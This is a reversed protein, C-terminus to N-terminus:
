AKRPHYRALPVSRGLRFDEQRLLENTRNKIEATSSFKMAVSTTKQSFADLKM